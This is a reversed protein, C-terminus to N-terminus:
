QKGERPVQVCGHTGMGMYVTNKSQKQDSNIHGSSIVDKYLKKKM